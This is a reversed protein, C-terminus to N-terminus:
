RIDLQQKRKEQIYATPDFRPVRYPSPTRVRFNKLEIKKGKASLRSGFKHSYVRAGPDSNRRLGSAISVSPTRFGKKLGALEITLNKVRTQLLRESSQLKKIQM